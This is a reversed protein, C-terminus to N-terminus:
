RLRSGMRRRQCSGNGCISNDVKTSLVVKHGDPHFDKRAQEALSTTRRTMAPARPTAPAPSTALGKPVRRAKSSPAEPLKAGVVYNQQSSGIVRICM